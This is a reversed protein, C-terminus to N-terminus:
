GQKHKSIQTKLNPPETEPHPTYLFDSSADAPAYKKKARLNQGKTQDKLQTRQKPGKTQDKLGSAPPQL